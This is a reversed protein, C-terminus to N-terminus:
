QIALQIGNSMRKIADAYYHPEIEFAVYDFGLSECAILSSASGVHTDLILDGPKAFKSLLWRYMKVPKQTPHIRVEKTKMDGQIMGNWRFSCKVIAGDFSTFALEGDGWQTKETGKDWFIWKKGEPLHKTFYNGGWIIQNKSVRFLEYFYAEDPRSQAFVAHNYKKTKTLKTKSEARFAPETIGYPPDVIALDFKKDPFSPLGTEPCMCDGLILRGM